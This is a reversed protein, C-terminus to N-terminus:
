RCTSPGCRHSGGQHNAIGSSREDIESRGCKEIRPLKFPQIRIPSTRRAVQRLVIGIFRCNGILYRKWLRRPELLLRYFWEWGIRQLFRPARPFVGALIEFSGGVGILVRAGSSRGYREMWCEQKPAGLAVFVLDPRSRRIAGRVAYLERGDQEFGLGPCCTGAVTLRPFRRKLKEAALKASGPRGGLLFVRLGVEAAKACLREFLDVGAIREPLQQGLLRSAFVLSAGDAVVLDAHSYAERLNSDTELLVIHQANATVVCVPWPNLLAHRTIADVARAFSCCHVQAGGIRVRAVGSRLPYKDLLADRRSASIM